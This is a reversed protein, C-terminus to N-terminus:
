KKDVSIKLIKKTEENIQYEDNIQYGVVWIIEHNSYLIPWNERERRPVKQNIFYDSIKITHGKMGLPSFRDGESMKGIFLNDINNADVYATYADKNNKIKTMLQSSYTMLSINMKWAPSIQFEGEPYVRIKEGDIQLGHAIEFKHDSDHIFVKDENFTLSLNNILDINEGTEKTEIANSIIQITNFSIDRLGSRMLNIATRFLHNQLAQPYKSLKERYFVVCDKSVSNVSEIWAENTADKILEYDASIIESMQFLSNRINPNYEALYPLLENRIKNRLFKNDLNSLDHVPSLGNLECYSNIEKRWVSILPRIVPLIHMLITEIQDDANHAVCVAQASVENAIGFLEQYRLTRAAEEFSLGKENVLKLTDVSRGIYKIERDSCFEKVFEAESGSEDRLKHDVNVAIVNFGSVFLIHLLALSDPGGSVGIVLPTKKDIGWSLINNKVSLEM